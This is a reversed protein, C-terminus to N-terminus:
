NFKPQTDKPWTKLLYIWIPVSGAVAIWGQPIEDSLLLIISGHLTMAVLLSRTRDVLEGMLASLIIVTPYFILLRKFVETSTGSHIRNTFHWFEWM